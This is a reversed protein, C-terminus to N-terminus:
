PQDDDDEEPLRVPSFKEPYLGKMDAYFDRILKMDARVNGTPIIEPGFGGVKREYDLFSLVIPVDASRAIHYFGSKWHAVYGRTGEAPVTLALEGHEEFSRVMADVVDERRERRIPVGGLARLIAGPPGRFLTHKGM